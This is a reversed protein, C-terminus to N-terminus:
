AKATRPRRAAPAKATTKAATKAATKVTPKRAAPRKTAATKAGGTATKRPAAKRTRPAVEAMAPEAATTAAKARPRPPQAAKATRAWAGRKAPAGAGREVKEVLLALREEFSLALVDPQAMQETLGDAFGLLKLARLNAVTAHDLMIGGRENTASVIAQCDKLFADDRFLLGTM